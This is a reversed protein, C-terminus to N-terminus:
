DAMLAAREAEAQALRDQARLVEEAQDRSVADIRSARNQQYVRYCREAKELTEPRFTTLIVQSTRATKAVLNALASRYSADLAADVEDLLYFPAPELRQIAFVLSLAVVTKQGGSLQNMTLFSTAQGTFSVEIRVGVIDGLSAEQSGDTDGTMEVDRDRRLQKLKGAGGPVMEGFVQQFHGNVRRLTELVAHQKQADIQQIAEAIASEGADIDEKRNRLDVLQVSFNEYQEVAKRNVHQFAQLARNAESLEQVLQPKSLERCQEVEAPAAALGQLKADVEVKKSGQAGLESTLQDVRVSAQAAQDTVRQEELLLQELHSRGKECSESIKRLEESAATAGERAEQHERELRARIQAAEQAKELAADQSGSAAEVELAHLRPRLMSELTAQREEMSARLNQLTEQASAEQAELAQCQDTLGQLRKTEAASLTSLSRSAREAKKAEISAECDSILVQMRHRWERLNNLDRESASITEEAHKVEEALRQLEVRIKGPQEQIERRESHLGNVEEGVEEIQTDLNPLKEEAQLLRQQAARIAEALSLRVFRQPDQFGGTIVGKRSVRDGDLAIADIGHRRAVEECLEMTRCVVAKGFVQQVAPRVWDPCKVVSVLPKVGEMNPFSHERLPLQSIPTVVVAGLRRTRVYKVAEAAAEDDMALVNFLASGAFSEVAARFTASVEIHSLLTGRIRDQLGQEQAWRMVATVAQCNARPMTGELRYQSTRAEQRLKEVERQAKHRDQHLLRLKEASSDLREGLGRLEKGLSGLEQEKSSVDTRGTVAAEHAQKQSKESRKEREMSVDIKRRADALKEERVRVEEDLARNREEVTRFQQRRGQRALLQEREANCVQRQQEVSRLQELAAVVQPREAEVLASAEEVRFLSLAICRETDALRQHDALECKWKKWGAEKRARQLEALREAGEFFM